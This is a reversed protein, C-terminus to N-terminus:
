KKISMEQIRQSIINIIQEAFAKKSQQSFKEIKVKDALKYIITPKIFDGELTNIDNAVILDLNNALLKQKAVNINDTTDLSFGVVFLNRKRNSIAKLINPTRTLELQLTKDKIKDTSKKIPQYDCVAAAMILIDAHTIETKVAKLMQETTRVSEVEIEEPPPQSVKGVILKVNAGAARAAKALEFGMKGSSRNTIVRIPDIHEETAGATVIVRKDKLPADASIVKKLEALIEQVQPFRGKGIEECALSGTEPEIFKCGISKLYKVNRQTIESEWMRFNMAPVFIIKRTDFTATLIITSLLDDAIGSACKAIINATAPAIILASLEKILDIHIPLRNIETFMESFVPNQSLTEFTLPSILKKASQTMVVWVDFNEKKLLRVLELAKYIAISGTVGVVIKPKTM